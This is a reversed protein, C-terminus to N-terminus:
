KLILRTFIIDHPDFGKAKEGRSIEYVVEGITIQGGEINKLEPAADGPIIIDGESTVNMSNSSYTRGTKVSPFLCKAKRLGTSIPACDETLGKDYVNYECDTRCFYPLAQKMAEFEHAM